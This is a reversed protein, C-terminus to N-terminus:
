IPNDFKIEDFLPMGTVQRRGKGGCWLLSSRLTKLFFFKMPFFYFILKNQNLMKKSIQVYLSAEFLEHFICGTFLDDISRLSAQYCLLSQNKNIQSATHCPFNSVDEMQRNM